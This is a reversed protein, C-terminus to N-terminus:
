VRMSDFIPKDDKNLRELLVPSRSRIAQQAFEREEDPRGMVFAAILRDGKLWWASFKGGAMDGRYLVQDFGKSDGWFEYSLDFVDSFFYPLYHYATREVGSMLKAAHKGSEVANDWHDMHRWKEFILDPYRIVDGAGYVDPISTELYENVVIGRDITLGSALFLETAPEVGLGAVVLDAPLEQINSLSVKTVRDTGSFWTVQAGSIFKVGRAEFYHVFFSSMEPTFFHTDMLRAGRLLLTTDVNHEALVSGVEMSIYGGGIVVARKATAMRERIALSDAHWRLYCIGDLNAGPVGLKNVKSGTAILLKDFTIDGGGRIILRKGRLDARLVTSNLHVEIGNTEYFDPKNILIRDESKEGKLYGKSLAPRDYPLLDDASVIGLEGPQLGSEVFARAAHGAVIGGGLILYKYHSNV